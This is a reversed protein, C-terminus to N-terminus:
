SLASSRFILNLNVYVMIQFHFCTELLRMCSKSKCTYWISNTRLMILYVPRIIQNFISPTIRVFGEFFMLFIIKQKTLNVFLSFCSKFLSFRDNREMLYTSGFHICNNFQIHMSVMHESKKKVNVHKKLEFDAFLLSM